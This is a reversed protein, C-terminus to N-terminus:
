IKGDYMHGDEVKTAAIFFLCDKKLSFGTTEIDVSVFNKPNQGNYNNFPLRLDNIIRNKNNM